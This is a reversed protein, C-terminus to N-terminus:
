HWIQFISHKTKRSETKWNGPQTLFDPSPALKTFSTIL